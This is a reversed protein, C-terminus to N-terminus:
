EGNEIRGFGDGFEGVEEAKFASAQVTRVSM